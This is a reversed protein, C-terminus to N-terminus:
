VLWAPHIHLHLLCFVVPLGPFGPYLDVLIMGIRLRERIVFHSDRKCRKKKEAACFQLAYYAVVARSVRQQTMANMMHCNGTQCVQNMKARQAQTVAEGYRFQTEKNTNAKIFVLLQWHKAM